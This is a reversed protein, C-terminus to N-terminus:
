QTIKNRGISEYHFGQQKMDDLSYLNRGDFIVPEKLLEKIVNFSPARFVQWETILALADAGILAKYQDKAYEIKDGFLKKINDMAEPDFVKVKAGAELLGNITQMSSAERIDDTNAKFALGWIAIIKGTL